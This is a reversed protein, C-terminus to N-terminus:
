AAAGALERQGSTEATGEITKQGGTIQIRRPKRTEPQPINLTLVGDIISATIREPDLGKPVQLMRQFKGYGREVRYWRGDGNGNKEAIAFPYTREGTVTLVDDVLQIDLDEPRLGPVDMYVTVEEDSVVLDAAPVFARGLGNGSLLRDRTLDFLSDFQDFLTMNEGGKSNM